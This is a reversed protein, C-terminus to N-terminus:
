YRADASPKAGQRVESVQVDTLQCELFCDVETVEDGIWGVAAKKGCSPCSEWSVQESMSEEDSGLGRDSPGLGRRLTNVALLVRGTRCV